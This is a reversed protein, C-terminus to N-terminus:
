DRFRIGFRRRLEQQAEAMSPHSWLLWRSWFGATSVDDWREPSKRPAKAETIKLAEAIAKKYAEEDFTQQAPDLMSDDKSWRLLDATLVGGHRRLYRLMRAANMHKRFDSMGRAGFDVVIPRASPADGPRLLKVRYKKKTRPSPRLTATWHVPAHAGDRERKVGSGPQEKIGMNGM